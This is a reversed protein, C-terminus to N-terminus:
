LTIEVGVPELILKDENQRISFPGFAKAEKTRYILSTQKEPIAFEITNLGDIPSMITIVADYHCQKIENIESEKKELAKKLEELKEPSHKKADEYNWAIEDREENLYHLKSQLVPLKRYDIVFHNDEGLIREVTISKSAFVKLNHKLSRITVHEACVHGGLATNITVHTAYVTGGELSNIEAKHCRLTGKHRNIKASKATVFAQNHTAGEIQVDKAEIKSKAGMHGTIHISESVLEVGEGIGDRTVDNQSIVIAVENEEKKTVKGEVRKIGELVIKNSITLKNNLTSVFGRKRSYYRVETEDDQVLITAHDIQYEIKALNNTRGHDIRHGLANLGAKGYKPKIYTIILESPEVETVKEDTHKEIYHNIVRSPESIEPDIGEFLLISEEQSFGHEYIKKVFSRLDRVMCESFLNVMMKYKSKIKNIESYLRKLMEQEDLELLPLTSEPSILMIPYTNFEGREIRYVLHINRKKKAHIKIKYIQLFRANDKILKETSSYERKYADHFKVFAQHHCTKFYTQLGLLTYDLKAYTYGHETAYEKVSALPNKTFVITKDVAM